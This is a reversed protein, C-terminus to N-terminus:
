DEQARLGCFPCYPLLIKTDKQGRRKEIPTTEVYLRPERGDFFFLTRLTANEKALAANTLQICTCM